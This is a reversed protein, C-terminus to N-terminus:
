ARARVRSRGGCRAGGSRSRWSPAILPQEEAAEEVLAQAVVEGGGARGPWAGRLAREGRGVLAPAITLGHVVNARKEVSGLREELGEGGHGPARERQGDDKLHEPERQADARPLVDEVGGIRPRLDREPGDEAGVERADADVRDDRRAAAVDDLQVQDLVADVAGRVRRERRAEDDLREEVEDDRRQEEEHRDLHPDQGPQGVEGVEAGEVPAEDDLVRPEGEEEPADEEAPEDEEDGPRRPVHLVELLLDGEAERDEAVPPHVEALDDGPLRRAPDGTDGRREEEQAGEVDVRGGLRRERHEDDAPERRHERERRAAGARLLRDQDEREGSGGRRRRDEGEAETLLEHDRDHVDHDAEAADQQHHARQAPAAVHAADLVLDPARRRLRRLVSAVRGCAPARDRDAGRAHVAQPHGRRLRGRVARQLRRQRLPLRDAGRPPQARVARAVEIGDERGLHIDLLVLAVEEEADAIRSIEALGTAELVRYGELELNVRCLLRISEDDDAVIVLRQARGDM